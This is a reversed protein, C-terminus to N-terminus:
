FLRRSGGGGVYGTELSCELENRHRNPQCDSKAQRQEDHMGDLTASPTTCDETKSKKRQQVRQEGTGTALM